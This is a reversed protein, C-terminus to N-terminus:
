EDLYGKIKVDRGELGALKWVLAIRGQPSGRKASLGHRNREAKALSWPWLAKRYSRVRIGPGAAIVEVDTIPGVVEFRM